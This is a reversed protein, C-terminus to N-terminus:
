QESEALFIVNLETLKHVEAIIYCFNELFLPKYTEPQEKAAKGSHFFGSLLPFLPFGMRGSIRHTHIKGMSDTIISTILNKQVPHYM